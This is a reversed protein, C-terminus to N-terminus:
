TMDGMIYGTNLRIRATDTKTYICMHHNHLDREWQNGQQTMQHPSHLVMM